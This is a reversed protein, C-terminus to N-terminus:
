CERMKKVPCDIHGYANFLSDSIESGYWDIETDNGLSLASSSFVTIVKKFTINLQEFLEISVIKDFVPIDPFKNKYDFKDRPHTKILLSNPNYNNIIKLYIQYQENSDITGDTSFPQTCVINPKSKMLKIDNENIDFLFLILAKKSNSSIRWLNKFDISIIKKGKLYQPLMENAPVILESCLRSSGYPYGFVGGIILSALKRRLKHIRWFNDYINKTLGTNLSIFAYPADPIYTYKKNGILYYSCDLYHDQAFIKAHKLFPWRIIQLIRVFMIMYIPHRMMEKSFCHHYPFRRRISQDIAYHFFFFTQQIEFESSYLLYTLLGFVSGVICVRSILKKKIVGM